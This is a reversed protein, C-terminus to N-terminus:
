QADKQPCGWKQSGCQPVRDFFLPLMQTDPVRLTHMLKIAPTFTQPVTCNAPESSGYLQCNCSNRECITKDASLYWRFLLLKVPRTLTLSTTLNVPAYSITQIFCIAERAFSSRGSRQNSAILSISWQKICRMAFSFRGFSCHCRGTTKPYKKVAFLVLTFKWNLDNFGARNVVTNYSFFATCGSIM